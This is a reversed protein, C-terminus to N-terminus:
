KKARRITTIEQLRCEVQIGDHWNCITIFSVGCEASDDEFGKVKMLRTIEDSHDLIQKDIQAVTLKKM